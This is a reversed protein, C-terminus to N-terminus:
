RLLNIGEGALDQGTDRDDDIRRVAGRAGAM